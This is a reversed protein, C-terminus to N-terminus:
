ILTALNRHLKMINGSSNKYKTLFHSAAQSACAFLPFSTTSVFDLAICRFKSGSFTFLIQKIRRNVTYSLWKLTLGVFHDFVSLCNTRKQRPTTQTHKFIKHTQRKLLNPQFCLFLVSYIPKKPWIIKM